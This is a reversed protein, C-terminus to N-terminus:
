QLFILKHFKQLRLVDRGCLHISIKEPNLQTRLDM